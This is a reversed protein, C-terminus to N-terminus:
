EDDDNTQFRPGSKEGGANIMTSPHPADEAVATLEPDESRFVQAWLNADPVLIGSLRGLPKAIYRDDGDVLVYRSVGDESNEDQRKYAYGVLNFYGPVEKQLGGKILPAMVNRGSEEDYQWDALASVYVDYPLNRIMRVFARMRDGLIGWDRKTFVGYDKSNKSKSAMIEDRMLLQIETLGDYFLATIGARAFEGRAAMLTFERVENMTTMCPVGTKPDMQAPVIADPHNDRITDWGQAETLCVAVNEIGSMLHTKGVGPKGYILARIRAEGKPVDGARNLVLKVRGEKAAAKGQEESTASAEPESERPQM